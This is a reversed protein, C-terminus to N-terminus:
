ESLGGFGREKNDTCTENVIKTSDQQYSHVIVDVTEGRSNQSKLKDIAQKGCVPCSIQEAM